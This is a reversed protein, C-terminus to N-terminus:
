EEDGEEELALILANQALAVLERMEDETSGAVVTIEYGPPGKQYTRVTVSSREPTASM